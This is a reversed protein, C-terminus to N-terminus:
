ITTAMEIYDQASCPKLPVSCGRTEGEVLRPDKDWPQNLGHDICGGGYELIRLLICLEQLILVTRM